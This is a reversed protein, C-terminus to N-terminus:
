AGASRVGGRFELMACGFDVWGRWWLGLQNPAAEGSEITPARSGNLFAVEAVCFDGPPLLIFWATDSTSTGPPAGAVGLYPSVVVDFKGQWANTNPVTQGATAAGVVATSQNLKWATTELAPPVLLIKPESLLPDGNKDQQQRQIQWAAQLGPDGLASGAGTSVNKNASTWFTAANTLLCAYTAKEIAVAAMRGLNRAVRSFASLDDGILDRRDVGFMAARTDVQQTYTDADMSVHKLEGGRPLLKMEGIGTVRYRTWVKFDTVDDGVRCWKSWTVGTGEYSALLLKNALNSLLSSMGAGGYTSPGWEGARISLQADAQLAAKISADTFRGIPPTLGAAQM